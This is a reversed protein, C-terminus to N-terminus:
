KAGGAIFYKKVRRAEKFRNKVNLWEYEIKVGKEKLEYIRASLRTEGLEKNAQLTTISGHEQMFDYVRQQTRDLILKKTVRM